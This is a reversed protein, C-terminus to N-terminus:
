PPYRHRTFRPPRPRLPTRSRRPTPPRHSFSPALGRSPFLKPRQRHHEARHPPPPRPIRRLPRPSRARLKTKSNEPKPIVHEPAALKASPLPSPPTAAANAFIRALSNKSSDSPAATMVDAAQKGSWALVRVSEASVTGPDSTGVELRFNLEEFLPRTCSRARAFNSATWPLRDPSQLRRKDDPHGRLSAASGRVPSGMLDPFGKRQSGGEVGFSRRVPASQGTVETRALRFWKYKYAAASGGVLIVLSLAAIIWRLKNQPQPDPRLAIDM